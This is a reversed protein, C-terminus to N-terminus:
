RNYLESAVPSLFREAASTYSLDESIVGLLKVSACEFTMDAGDLLASDALPKAAEYRKWDVAGEPCATIGVSLVGQAALDNILGAWRQAEPATGVGFLELLLADPPSALLMRQLPDFQTGPTVRLNVVNGEFNKFPHADRSDQRSAQWSALLAEHGMHPARVDIEPSAWSRFGRMSVTSHKTVRVGRMLLDGFGVVTDGSLDGYRGAAADLAVKLNAAADSGVAVAPIQAGTILVPGKRRPAQLALASATYALTDTGHLVVVGGCCELLRDIHESLALWHTPSVDCSDLLPLCEGDAQWHEVVVEFGRERGINETLAMLESGCQPAYLGESHPDATAAITGGTVIVGLKM